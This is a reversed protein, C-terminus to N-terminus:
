IAKALYLILALGGLSFSSSIEEGRREDAGYDGRYGSLARFEGHRPRQNM